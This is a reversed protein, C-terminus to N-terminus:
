WAVTETTEVTVVLEGDGDVVDVVDMGLVGLLRKVMALCDDMGLTGKLECKKLLRL